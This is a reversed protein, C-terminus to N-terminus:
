CPQPAEKATSITRQLYCVVTYELFASIVAPSSPHHELLTGLVRRARRYLVLAKVPNADEEAQRTLEVAEVLLRDATDMDEAAISSWSVHAFLLFMAPLAPWRM